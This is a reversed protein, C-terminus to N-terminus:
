AHEMDLVFSAWSDAKAPDMHNHQLVRWAAWSTNPLCTLPRCVQYVLGHFVHVAGDDSASAFLPYSRHVAVSRLARAHYRLARYPKDSLDLDFWALRKDQACDMIELM